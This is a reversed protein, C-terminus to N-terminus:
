MTKLIAASGRLSFDATVSEATQTTFQVAVRNSYALRSRVAGELAVSALCGRPSCARFAIQGATKGDFTLTLGPPLLVYLPTQFLAM